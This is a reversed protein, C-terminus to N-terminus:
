RVEEGFLVQVGQPQLGQQKRVQARLADIIAEDKSEDGVDVIYQVNLTKMQRVEHEESYAQLEQLHSELYGFDNEDSQMLSGLQM